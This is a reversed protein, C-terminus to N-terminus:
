ENIRTPSPFRSAVLGLHEGAGHLDRRRHVRGREYREVGRALVNGTSIAMPSDDRTPAWMSLNVAVSRTSAV